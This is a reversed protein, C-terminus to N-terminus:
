TKMWGHSPQVKTLTLSEDIWSFAPSQWLLIKMKGMLGSSKQWLLTKMLGSSKTLTNKEDM